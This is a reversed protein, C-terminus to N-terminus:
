AKRENEDILRRYYSDNLYFEQTEYTNIELNSEIYNKADVKQKFVLSLDFNHAKDVLIHNGLNDKGLYNYGDGIPVIYYLKM